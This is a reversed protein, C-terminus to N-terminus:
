RLGKPGSGRYYFAEDLPYLAIVADFDKIAGVHDGMGSRALGRLFVAQLDQADRQLALECDAVAGTFDQAKIKVNARRYLAVDRKDFDRDPMPEMDMVVTFDERCRRFGRCRFARIRAPLLSGYKKTGPGSGPHLRRRAGENDGMGYRSSARYLYLDETAPGRDLLLDFDRIAGAFDQVYERVLGREFYYEPRPPIWPSPRTSTWCPRMGRVWTGSPPPGCFTPENRHGPDLAIAQDFYEMATDPNWLELEHQGM